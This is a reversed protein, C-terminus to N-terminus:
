PLLRPRGRGGRPLRRQRANHYSRRSYDMLMWTTFMQIFRPLIDEDEPTWPVLEGHENLRMQVFLVEGKDEYVHFREYYLEEGTM